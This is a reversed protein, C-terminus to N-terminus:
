REALGALRALGACVEAFSTSLPSLGVRIGNPTRFDPIVGQKWLAATLERAQDHGLTVHAGRLTADRPSDLRFGLHELVADYFDLVFGTLAISKDRVAQIGARELLALMDQMPQMALIAPTGSLMRGIGAAPTYAFGMEFPDAAGMWGHVPQEIDGILGARVYAFAPAGPGGNLFKYTCGVAFDVGHADLETPVAGASHCLDWMMLAGAEHAIATIAGMDAIAASRYSVHSLLVLATRPGAVAAVDRPQPGHLLDTEIWRLTVGLEDAIGQVIFRDTPFNDTDVVIEDRGAPAAAIAARVLKYILVSTSDGVVTQGPAAGLLVSAIRDGVACPQSMWREDWGRILRASWEDEVFRDLSCRTARLPRGLSNGDLYAVVGPTDLFEARYAALPDAADLASASDTLRAIAATPSDLNTM